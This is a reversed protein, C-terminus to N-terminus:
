ILYYHTSFVDIYNTYYRGKSTNTNKSELKEANHPGAGNGSGVGSSRRESIGKIFDPMAPQHKIIVIM